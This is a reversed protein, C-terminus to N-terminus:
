CDKGDNPPAEPAEHTQRQCPSKNEEPTGETVHVTQLSRWAPPGASSRGYEASYTSTIVQVEQVTDVDLAGLMSGSSRTRTAVAGDVMVVYEDARGGNINFGGNSVSDPDFTGIGAGSVVGPTLAALYVPNRGNLTLNQIQKNDVVSGVAASDTQVQAASSEVTLQESNAGVTLEIDVAVKSQADIVVGTRAYKKFGAAEVTVDYRGVFLQPLIYYGEQNTTTKRQELSGQNTALVTAGPVTAGSTDRIFGSIQGADFQAFVPAASLLGVFLIRKMAKM